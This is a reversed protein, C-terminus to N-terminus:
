CRMIKLTKRYIPTNRSGNSWNVRICYDYYSENMGDRLLSQTLEGSLYFSATNNEVQKAKLIIEDDGDDHILMEVIDSDTFECPEGDTKFDVSFSFDDGGIIEISNDPFINNSM